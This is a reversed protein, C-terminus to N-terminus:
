AALSFEAGALEAGQADWAQLRLCDAAGSRTLWVLEKAVSAPFRASLAAEVACLTDMGGEGDLRALVRDPRVGGLGEAFRDVAARADRVDHLEFSPM